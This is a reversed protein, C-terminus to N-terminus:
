QLCIFRSLDSAKILLKFKSVSSVSDATINLSNWPAVVRQCFFYKRINSCCRNPFIKWQHGRTVSNSRLTFMADCDTKLLGFLIKYTYLLDHQLRRLELTDLGLASLRNNYSMNSMGSLRKTFRRQVSEVRKIDKVLYPSWVCTAYELLPRVYVVFARMLVKVNRSLFCKHILNARISARSVINNIHDTFKLCDDVYIGLDKVVTQVVLPKSDLYIVSDTKPKGIYLLFCKKYSIVLQWSDSWSQLSDLYSQFKSADLLNMRAYLKLDDAYLKCACHQDFLKAVDNIYIVFLLPGICSGQVVGSTLCESASFSNGVRTCQTRGSLFSQIWAFVNGSLGYGQLKVSLKQHSVSDFAKAYDIYAVTVGDKDDVALTWDNLAELLNTSTSKGTVFGHQQHTILRHQLLYSSLQQVIIREMLKCVVSTLSIPRYNNVDSALGEKAIPVVIAKKWEDPPKGVSMSNNFLLSLPFALDAALTKFLVPPFGDPGCSTSNKLKRLNNYVNDSTFVINEFFINDPVLKEFKPLIGDDKNCVSSFHTNLANAKDEDSIAVVGDHCRLAGVGSRCSLRNNVHKYFAGLNNSEIVRSEKVIDIERLIQSCQKAASKYRQLLYVNNPEAQHKRWLCKKRALFKRAKKPYRKRRTHNISSCEPVYMDIVERIVNSFAVWMTDVTTNVTFLNAWDYNSLYDRMGNYDADCWRYRKITPQDDRLNHAATASDLVITFNVRSHDSFGLPPNIDVDFVTNPENVLVIDLVNDLRTPASVIQTLGNDVAFDLLMSDTGGQPATLCSWNISGANFDGAIYCPWSVRVLDEICRLLQETQTVSQQLSNTSRYVVIVRCKASNYLVDVCLLEADFYSNPILINVAGLKRNVMMCVGGGRHADRDRRFVYFEGRPDLLSDPVNNNLWTETILVIHFNENYLVNHLEVLKNCISRANFMSLCLFRSQPKQQGSATANNNLPVFLHRM